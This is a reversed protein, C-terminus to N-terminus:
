FCLGSNDNKPVMKNSFLGFFASRYQKKAL